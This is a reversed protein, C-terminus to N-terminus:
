KEFYYENFKGNYRSKILGWKALKNLDRSATQRSIKFMETYLKVTLLKNSKIIYKLASIQRNNLDLERLNINKTSKFLDEMSKPGYFTVKFLEGIEEFKPSKLGHQKM